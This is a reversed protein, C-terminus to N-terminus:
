SLEYFLPNKAALTQYQAPPADKLDKNDPPYFGVPSTKYAEIATVLQQHDSGVRASKMRSSAFGAMPILLAALAGIIAIVTLLEILTFASLVRTPRSHGSKGKKPNQIKLKTM